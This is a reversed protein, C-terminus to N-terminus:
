AREVPFALVAGLSDVGAMVMLLRDLGIAIGSCDPLGHRLADLLRADPPPLPLGLRRREALDADFRAAQEDADALEHFGNGLEMGYLFVEVREVVRPDEPRHRALSPLCAPYDYVFSVRGQGLRPQLYHSFLLDLWISRNEGCLAEAESLGRTQACRAFDSLSATLPDIGLYREFLEAYAHRQAPALPLDQGCVTDFLAAVEDMLDELAFGIRYWELLTFEPNHHRGAEENRFAKCIQFISGSGAALLRKMAFEPSTQLYLRRGDSEGPLRFRTVFAHLNPDTVGTACLLPTEVELVGRKSFFGRVAALTRARLQLTGITCVPLWAPPILLLLNGPIPAFTPLNVVGIADLCSM